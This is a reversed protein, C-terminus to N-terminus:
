GCGRAGWWRLPTVGGCSVRSHVRKKLQAHDAEIRNNAYREIRHWAQPLMEELVRLYCAAQDTAVEVPAVVATAVARHFFRWVAGSDRRPSVYVDVVQGHEDVARYVYRWCGAVKVYTEDVQWRSGIAHRACRATEALIPTFRQVWRYITVHDVQVGREAMLEEVDRYSLGLAPVLASSAPDDGAPVPLRRIGIETPPGSPCPPPPAHAQDHRIVDKGGHLLGARGQCAASERGGGCM